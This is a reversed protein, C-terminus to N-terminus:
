VTHPPPSPPSPPNEGDGGRIQRMEQPSLIEKSSIMGIFSSISKQVPNKQLKKM